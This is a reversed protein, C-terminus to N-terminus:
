YTVIVFGTKTKTTSGAGNSATLSVTYIGTAGYTVIEKQNTSGTPSASAGIAGFNWAWGTPAFQWPNMPSTDVFYVTGGPIITVSVTAGTATAFNTYPPAPIPGKSTTVFDPTSDFSPAGIPVDDLRGPTKQVQIPLEAYRILLPTGSDNTYYPHEFSDDDYQAKTLGKLSKVSTGLMEAVSNITLESLTKIVVFSKMRAQIVSTTNYNNYEVFFYPWTYQQNLKFTPKGLSNTEERYALASGGRPKLLGTGLLGQGLTNDDFYNVPINSMGPISAKNKEVAQTKQKKSIDLQSNQTQRKRIAL